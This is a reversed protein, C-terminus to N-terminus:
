QTPYFYNGCTKMYYITRGNVGEIKFAELDRGDTVDLKSYQLGHQEGYGLIGVTGNAITANTCASSPVDNFGSYGLERAVYDLYNADYRSAAYRNALKDCFGTPTLSHSDGFEPNTGLRTVVVPAVATTSFLTTTLGSTPQARVPAPEVPCNASTAAQSGDWCTVMPAPEVPCTALDNVTSGDWCTFTEVKPPEVPCAATSTAFSNDWCTVKTPCAAQNEAESGDWCAIVAPPPPVAAPQCAKLLFFLALLAALALLLWKLWGWIGPGTSAAVAPPTVAAAAVPAAAAAVVPVPAAAAKPACLCSRGVERGTEDYLVDIYKDGHHIRKYYDPNDKLRLVGSLEQDRADGTPFGESRLRVDGNDDYLAFYHQGNEHKFMAVNNVRDNVTHGEYAECPLYDDAKDKPKAAMAATAAVAAAAAVPAVNAARKRKGMLYAAGTAAAAASGYWVSRAIEKNNGARLGFDYKKSKKLPGRYNYRDEITINKEVSAVGVDRAAETPYGESILAIKGDEFYAFYYQGDEGKFTEIGHDRGKTQRTYFALPKYNQEVNAKRPAAAAAAKKPKAAAKSKAKITGLLRGALHEAKAKSSLTPSVAVEQKNGAIISLGWKGGDREEVKVNAKIKENKKVSEIGNDRGSEAAYSQSILAIDGDMYRCFFHEGGEEFKSFGFKKAKTNKKYFSLPKYDDIKRAM